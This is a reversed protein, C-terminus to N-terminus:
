GERIIPPAVVARAATADESQYAALRDRNSRAVSSTSTTEWPHPMTEIPEGTWASLLHHSAIVVQRLLEHQETWRLLQMVKHPELGDVASPADPDTAPQVAREIADFLASGPRNRFHEILLAM